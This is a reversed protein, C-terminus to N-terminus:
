GFAARLVHMIDEAARVPRPNTRGFPDDLTRRAITALAREGVGVEGLTRPLGLERIFTALLEAAPQGPADFCASILAQRERNVEVNWAMVHPLMVCSTYGHPVNCTGGLVHGIAHSLGMPVGANLPVMAQWAGMQCDLRAKLDAPDNHVRPLGSRLLRLGTAANGDCILNSALSALTEACHDVARIGTSSWLWRPTHVTIAPDLVITVAAMLRHLYGHKEKTADDTIGAIATFEAGSLTTPVNIIPIRPAIIAPFDFGGEPRARMRIREFSQPSHIDNAICVPVLKALDIVSGGGVAVLLDVNGVARVQETAAIVATRPTHAPVGSFTGAHRSGLAAAIKGIEETHRRLHDSAILFIRRAGIREAELAVCRAAPKGFIVRELATYGFEGSIM